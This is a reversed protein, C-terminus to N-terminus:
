PIPITRESISRTKFEDILIKNALEKNSSILISIDRQQRKLENQIIPNELILREDEPTQYNVNFLNIVYNDAAGYASRAAWAIEQPSGTNKARLCYAVASSADEAWAMENCWECDDEKPILSMCEELDTTVDNSMMGNQLDDWLRNLIARLRSSNSTNTKTDLLIYAPFLREACSLGFLIRLEGVIQSLQTILKDEYFILHEM